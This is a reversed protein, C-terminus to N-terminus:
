RGGDQMPTVATSQGNGAATALGTVVDTLWGSDIATAATKAADCAPTVYNTEASQITATAGGKALANATVEAAPALVNCITGFAAAVQPADATAAEVASSIQACAAITARPVAIGAVALYKPLRNVAHDEM